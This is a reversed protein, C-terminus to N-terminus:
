GLDQSRRCGCASGFLACNRYVRLRCGRRSRIGTCLYPASWRRPCCRNERARSLAIFRSGKVKGKARGPSSMTPCSRRRRHHMCQYRAPKQAARVLGSVVQALAANKRTKNTKECCAAGGRARGDSLRLRRSDCVRRRLCARVRDAARARNAGNDAM